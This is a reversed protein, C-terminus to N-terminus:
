IEGGNKKKKQYQNQMDMQLDYEGPSWAEWFMVYLIHM